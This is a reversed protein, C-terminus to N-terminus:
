DGCGPTLPMTKRSSASAPAVACLMMRDVHNGDRDKRSAVVRDPAIGQEVWGVLATLLDQSADEPAASGAHGGFLDSGPGGACHAVGPALFLRVVDAGGATEKVARAHYNISDNASVITDAWGHYLILKGGRQAFTDLKADMANLRAALVEDVKAMDADRDFTRADWDAGLAWRLVGDGRSRYADGTPSGNAILGRETGAPWAPYLEEGTRPNRMTEHFVTVAAVEAPTLCDAADKGVSCQLKKANFRCARPDRIYAGGGACDDLVAKSVLSIKDALGPASQMLVYEYTFSAHLRTRNHGPAGALVGDYDEPYRQAEMLGQHGGTSCGAFYSYSAPRGYHAAVIAKGARTMEHTSRWGWNDALDLRGIGVDYGRELLVASPYTGMDTNAVAFGRQLGMVLSDYRLTGAFGGNGTGLFRGNWVSPPPLWVETMIISAQGEDVVDVTLLVRCFHPVNEFSQGQPSFFTGARFEAASRVVADGFRQGTYTACAHAQGGFMAGALAFLFAVLKLRRM